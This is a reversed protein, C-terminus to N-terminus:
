ARVSLPPMTGAELGYIDAAEMQMLDGSDELPCARGDVEWMLYCWVDACVSMM